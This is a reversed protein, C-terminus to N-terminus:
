VRMMMVRRVASCWFRMQGTSGAHGYLRPSEDIEHTTPIKVLM